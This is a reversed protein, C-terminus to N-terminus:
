KGGSRRSREDQQFQLKRMGTATYVIIINYVIAGEKDVSKAVNSHIYAFIICTKVLYNEESKFYREFHTIM